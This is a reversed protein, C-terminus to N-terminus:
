KRERPLVPASATHPEARAMPDTDRLNGADRRRCPRTRVQRQEGARSLRRMSMERRAVLRRAKKAKKAVEGRWSGAAAVVVVGEELREACTAVM